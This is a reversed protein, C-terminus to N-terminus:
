VVSNIIWALTLVTTASSFIIQKARSPDLFLLHPLSFNELRHPIYMYIYTTGFEHWDVLLQSSMVSLAGFSLFRCIQIVRHSCQKLQSCM